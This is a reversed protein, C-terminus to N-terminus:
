RVPVAPESSEQVGFCGRYTAYFSCYLMTSPILSIPLAIALGSDGLGLGALVMALTGSVALSLAFWLLGYVTFAWRNRWCAVVSFFLAKAPPVDHWACLVPAFWLLMSVPIYIVGAILLGVLVGPTALTAPDPPAGTGFMLRVLVGGDGLSSSAFVLAMLAAYVVGLVVQRQAVKGGYAYFASFLVTPMFPKGAVVTRCALMFGVTMAPTVVFPLAAGAFPVLALMAMVTVYLLLLLLFSFPSRRFLWIGQRFWVYGASAPVEILRM